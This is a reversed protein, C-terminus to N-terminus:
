RFCYTNGGECNESMASEPMMRSSLFENENVHLRLTREVGPDIYKGKQQRGRGMREKIGRLALM